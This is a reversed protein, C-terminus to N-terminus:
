LRGLRASLRMVLVEERGGKMANHENTVRRKAVKLGESEAMWVM